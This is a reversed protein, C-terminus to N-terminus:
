RSQPDLSTGNTNASSVFQHVRDEARAREHVKNLLLVETAETEGGAASNPGTNLRDNGTFSMQHELPVANKVLEPDM